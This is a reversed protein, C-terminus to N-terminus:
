CLGALKALRELQRRKSVLRVHGAKAEVPLLPEVVNLFWRSPTEWNQLHVPDRSRLHEEYMERLFAPLISKFEEDTHDAEYAVDRAISLLQIFDETLYDLASFKEVKAQMEAPVLGRVFDRVDQDSARRVNIDFLRASGDLAAIPSMFFLETARAGALGLKVAPRIPKGNALGIFPWERTKLDVGQPNKGLGGRWEPVQELLYLLRRWKWPYIRHVRDGYAKAFDFFNDDDFAKWKPSAIIKQCTILRSTFEVAESSEVTKDASVPIGVSALLDKVLDAQLKDFHALDDGVFVFKCDADPNFSFDSDRLHYNVGAYILGLTIAFLNFSFILGLPQGQLWQIVDTRFGKLWPWTAFDKERLSDYCEKVEEPLLWMGQSCYIILQVWEEDIGLRRLVHLQLDLPINDSAGELDISQAYGFRRLLIQANRRGEEQDFQWNGPLLRAVKELYRQLPRFAQQWARAPNAIARLKYGKEQLLAIRGIVPPLSHLAIGAEMMTTVYHNYYQESGRLTGDLIHPAIQMAEGYAFQRLSTLATAKEPATRSSPTIGTPGRRSDSGVYAIIPDGQPAPPEVDRIRKLSELGLDIYRKVRALETEDPPNRLVGKTFKALQRRTIREGEFHSYIMLTNWVEALRRCRTGKVFLVKFAGVPAGDRHTAIWQTRCIPLGCVYHLLMNKLDKLRRVTSEEGTCRVWKAIERVMPMYQRPTLGLIELRQLVATDRDIGTPM